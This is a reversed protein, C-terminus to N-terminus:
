RAPERTHLIVAERNAQTARLAQGSCPCALRIAAAIVGIVPFPIALIIIFLAYALLVEM